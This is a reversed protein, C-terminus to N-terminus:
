NGEGEQDTHKCLEDTAEKEINEEKKRKRYKLLIIIAVSIIAIAVATILAILWHKIVFRVAVIGAYILAWLSIFIAIRMVWHIIRRENSDMGWEGALHYSIIFAFTGIVAMIIFNAIFPIPLGFPSTILDFIQKM